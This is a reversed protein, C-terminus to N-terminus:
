NIRNESESKPPPMYVGNQPIYPSENEIFLKKTNLKNTLVFKSLQYGILPSIIYGMKYSISNNTTQM